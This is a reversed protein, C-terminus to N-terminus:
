LQTCLARVVHELAIGRSGKVLIVDGPQALGLVVSQAAVQDQCEVVSEEDMGANRAGWAIDRAASGVTVIQGPRYSAAKQGIERHCAESLHGLELMDGLVLMLRRGAAIEHAAELAGAMSTPNANYTDNIVLGGSIWPLLEMRMGSLAVRSLGARVDTLSAGVALAAAAAGLANHVQYAGPTPIDIEVEQGDYHLRFAVGNTGRTTIDTATVYGIHDRIEAPPEQQWGFFMVRKDQCTRAMERVLADDANLVAISGSPMADLLERKAAQIATQSGLLEMHVTGVNTIVGVHPRAIKALLRIQGLGRMGMEVVANRYGNDLELLTLPLGIENNFNEQSKLVPGIEGCISAIMDKTTTKGTSGTVAIIPLCFLTRYGRALDQLALLTDSVAIVVLELSSQDIQQFKTALDEARAEEILVAAAGRVAAALAFEHGDFREGKLAIFLDGPKASRSDTSIGNVTLSSQGCLLRGSTWEIIEGVTIPRM